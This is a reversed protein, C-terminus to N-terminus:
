AAARREVQWDEFLRLQRKEEEKLEEFKQIQDQSFFSIIHGDKYQNTEAPAVRGNKVAENIWDISYGTIDALQKNSILGKENMKEVTSNKMNPLIKSFDAAELDARKFYYMKGGDINPGTVPMIGNAMLRDLLGRTSTNFTRVIISLTSYTNNFRDIEDQAIIWTGGRGGAAKEASLLGRKILFLFEDNSTHLLKATESMTRKDGRRKAAETRSFQEIGFTNFLLSSLGIGVGKAAPTIKGDLILKVFAGTDLNLKSLKQIAKHFSVLPAITTQKEGHITEEVSRLLREVELMEFKWELQGTEAPGQIAALCNSKILSIVAIRGIGLIKGAEVANISKDWREKLERVSDSEIMIRSRNIWPLYFGRLYGKKHLRNVTTISVKLYKIVEHRSMYKKDCYEEKSISGCWGAYGGDWVTTIYKKFAERMFDPLPNNKRIFLPDYFRGFDKYLGSDRGNNRESNPNKGRSEELFKFYNEPWNEFVPIANTLTEHMQRYSLKVAYHKGTVDVVGHQRGAIFYVACLLESLGVSSLPNNKINEIDKGEVTPEGSWPLGCAKQILRSLTMEPESVETQAIYRWDYGCTCINVRPRNWSIKRKCNPCEDILLTKHQPCCTYAAIDWIKRAHNSEKLCKPCVKPAMTRVSYKHIKHGFMNYSQPPLEEIGRLCAMDWLLDVNINLMKSLNKMRQNTYLTRQTTTNARMDALFLLLSPSYYGNEEAARILLGNLNEGEYPRPTRLLRETAPLEEKKFAWNRAEQSFDSFAIAHAKM